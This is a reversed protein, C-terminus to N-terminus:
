APLLKAHDFSLAGACFHPKILFTICCCSFPSTSAESDEDEHKIHLRLSAQLKDVKEQLVRVVSRLLEVALEQPPSRLQLLLQRVDEFYQEHRSHDQRLEEDVAKELGKLRLAPLIVRDEAVSHAHYVVYLFDFQKVLTHVAAILGADINLVDRAVQDRLAITHGFLKSAEEKLCTHVQDIEVLTGAVPQLSPLAM